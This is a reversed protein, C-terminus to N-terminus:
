LKGLPTTIRLRLIGVSLLPGPCAVLAIVLDDPRVVTQRERQRSRRSARDKLLFMSAPRAIADQEICGMNHEDRDGYHALESAARTLEKILWPQGFEANWFRPLFSSAIFRRFDYKLPFGAM